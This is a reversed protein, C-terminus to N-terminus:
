TFLYEIDEFFGVTCSIRPKQPNHSIVQHPEKPRFVVAQTLSYEDVYQCRAPDITSLGATTMGRILPDETTFFKTVSNECNIIPFNIRAFAMDPDIHIRSEQWYGVFFALFRVTLNMPKLEPVKSMVHNRDTHKFSVVTKQALIDQRYEWIYERLKEACPKYDLDLYRYYIM